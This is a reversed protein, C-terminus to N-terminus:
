KDLKKNRCDIASKALEREKIIRDIDSSHCVLWFGARGIEHLIVVPIKGEKKAKKNTDDWLTVAAHKARYKDEKYIRSHTSDSRTEKGDGSGSARAAGFFEASRQEAKQWTRRHTM